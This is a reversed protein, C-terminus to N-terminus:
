VLPRKPVIGVDQPTASPRERRAEPRASWGDVHARYGMFVAVDARTYYGLFVLSRVGWVGRRILLLPHRELTHLFATRRTDDLKTLRRGHRLVSWWEILRLFSVIQRRVPIPREALAQEVQEEVEGLITPNAARLEPVVTIAVARFISRVPELVHESMM